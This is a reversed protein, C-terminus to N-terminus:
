KEKKCKKKNAVKVLVVVIVVVVAVCLLYPLVYIFFFLLNESFVGFSELSGGVAEKFKDGFTEPEPTTFKKVEALTLNFTSYRVDNDITRQTNTLAEIQYQVDCLRSEIELMETVSEAKELMAFLREEQIRYSKLRNENDYYRETLNDVYRNVAAVNCIDSLGALFTEYNEQPIRVTMDMSRGGYGKKNLNYANESVIIGGLSAIKQHLADSAAEFDESELTVSATYVLKEERVPNASPMGASDTNESKYSDASASPELYGIDYGAATTEAYYLDSSDRYSENKGAAAGCSALSACLLLAAALIALKKM